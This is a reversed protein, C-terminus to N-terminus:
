YFIINIINLPLGNPKYSNLIKRLDEDCLEMVICYGKNIEDYFNDKLEIINKNKINKLVDIEKEYLDYLEGSFLKLAYFEKNIVNLVKYVTCFGGSGIKNKCEYECLYEV